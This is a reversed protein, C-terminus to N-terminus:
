WSHTKLYNTSELDSEQTWKCVDNFLAKIPASVGIEPEKVMFSLIGFDEKYKATLKM